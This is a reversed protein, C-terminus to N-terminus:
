AIGGEIISFDYVMLLLRKLYNACYFYIKELLRTGSLYSTLIFDDIIAPTDISQALTM